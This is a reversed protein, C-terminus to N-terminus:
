LFSRFCKGPFWTDRASCLWYCTLTVGEGVIECINEKDIMYSLAERLKPNDKFPETDINMGYYYIALLPKVIMGESLAPDAETAAVQGTPIQTYELNGAQFELFATNEDAMIVYRVGDLYAPERWYDENKELVIYQDHVWEVLKFPGVGNVHEAYNEGYQEIDEMAVPYFVVHGLTNVFDAYPYKLTVELTYDDLAKLGEFTDASGDQLEDYGLIPDLHYALYSATEDDAVRTWSYVFDEAVLERGSHFMVGQKLYFTYVLGDDSVDYTDVLAPEAELTEPNYEFLGDWVQRIVQIGESEYSNPPDLSVPEHIYMRMTGGEKPGTAEEATEEAPEEAPAEEAPEEAAEEAPAERSKPLLLKSPAVPM